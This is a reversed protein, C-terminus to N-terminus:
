LVLILVGSLILVFAWALDLNWWAKRLLALGLKDYVVIAVIGMVLLYGLTHIGVTLGWQPAPTMAGMAPMRILMESSHLHQYGTEGHAGVLIPILMLGAGHGSSMLVSWVTLDRFGVRMGVWRPHRSRILRYFGFAFLIAAAGYRVYEFPLKPQILEWALVVLGVSFAHGLAIPVLSSLVARRTKEQLGRAVAFLWGMGPNAGHYAGLLFVALWPWLSNM